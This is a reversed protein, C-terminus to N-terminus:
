SNKTWDVLFDSWLALLVISGTNCFYDISVIIEEQKDETLSSTEVPPKNQQKCMPWQGCKSLETQYDCILSFQTLNHKPRYTVKHQEKWM